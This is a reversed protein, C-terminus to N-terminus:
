ELLKERGLVSDVWARERSCAAAGFCAPSRSCITNWVVPPAFTVSGSTWDEILVMSALTSFTGWTLLM